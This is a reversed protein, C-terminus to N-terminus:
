GERESAGASMVAECSEAVVSHSLPLLFGLFVCVNASNASALRASKAPRTGVRGRAGDQSTGERKAAPGHSLMVPAALTALLHTRMSTPKKLGPPSTIEVLRNSPELPCRCDHARADVSLANEPEENAGM